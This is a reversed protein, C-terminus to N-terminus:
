IKKIKAIYFGETDNDWPWIRVTNRIDELNEIKYKGYEEIIESKNLNPINIKEIKANERKSLLYDVIFENELPEVSCTSYVLTGGEKLNDFAKIILKKQLYSLRNIADNSWIKLTKYSKRIAGTGSCPADLLIKDFKINLRDIKLGDMMTVITNIIGQKQLNEGLARIRNIDVDNAIILGENEMHMAIQTTKSGPAAALDLIVDDKKPDLAIPPIMSAAEQPYYYGLQFEVTNGIDRRYGDIWFGYKYFPIRKIEWGYDKLRSLVEKASINIKFPNQRLNYINDIEKSIYRLNEEKIICKLNDYNIDDILKITNIRIAKKLLRFSWELFKDYDKDLLRKFHEEFSEKIEM